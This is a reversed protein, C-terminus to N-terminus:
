TATRAPGVPISLIRAPGVRVLLLEQQELQAGLERAWRQVRADSAATVLIQRAEERRPKGGGRSWRGRVVLVSFGQPFHRSTVADILADDRISLRTRRPRAGVLLSYARNM